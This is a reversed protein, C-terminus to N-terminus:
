KNPPAPKPKNADAVAKERAIQLRTAREREDSLFTIDAKYREANAKILAENADQQVKAAEIKLGEMAIAEPTLNPTKGTQQAVVEMAKATLVAIRNEIDPPLPTGPPPLEVGLITQVQKRQQSALHDAIHAMAAPNEGLAMHTAVHAADDQWPGVAVPMNKMMNMNESLPDMPRAQQPPPLLKNIQEDDMGMQEYMSRYAEYQNHIMPASQALKLVGDARMMRQASSSINPDSVPLVEVGPAFDDKMITFQKGRVAFPYPRGPPLWEGLMESLMKLETRMSVHCRKLIASQMRSAAEMLAMTTGVPADQRGEGVSIETTNALSKAANYTEQLMQISVPSPEKYPLTTIAQSIPLGATDIERFETPGIPIDNDEMRMGKVRLGGPFNHLTGQDIVQRRIATATKASGGLIHAYGFGYFGTGPLFRYHIFANKRKFAPDGEKWNRRISLIKVNTKDIVVRYPLPLGTKEGADDVHEYGPLDLDCHINWIDHPKDGQYFIATTGQAEDAAIKIEETDEPMDDTPIADPLFIGQMQRLVVDRRSMKTMHCIRPATLIDNTFYSVVLDEPKIFPLTPRGMVPDIYATKFTSGVLALWFLMQDFDAYYEPALDTLYLNMFDRVREARDSTQKTSLGVIQTKVPGSAPLLEGRATAQFRLVAEILLPDFVGCAGKFPFTPEEITTGLLSIGTAMMSSWEARSDIDDKVAQILEDALGSIKSPDALAALNADFTEEVADPVLAPPNFNFEAGGDDLETVLAGEVVQPEAGGFEVDIGGM